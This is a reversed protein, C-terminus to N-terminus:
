FTSSLPGANGQEPRALGKLHAVRGVLRDILDVAMEVTLRAEFLPPAQIEPVDFTLVVEETDSDDLVRLEAFRDLRVLLPEPQPASM